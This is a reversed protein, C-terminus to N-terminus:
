IEDDKILEFNVSESYYGNSTGFWKIDVYGKVTALTYFTWTSGYGYDDEKRDNVREEAITIPSNLLDNVDGVIDDITVSECCDQHHLMQYKYGDSSEFLIIDKDKSVVINVLTKGLLEEISTSVNTWRSM